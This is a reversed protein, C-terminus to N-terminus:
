AHDSLNSECTKSVAIPDSVSLAFFGIRSSFFIADAEPKNGPHLKVAVIAKKVVLSVREHVVPNQQGGSGFQLLSDLRATMALVADQIELVLDARESACLNHCELFEANAYIASLSHRMDHSIFCAMSGIESMREAAILQSQARRPLENRLDLGVSKDFMLVNGRDSIM